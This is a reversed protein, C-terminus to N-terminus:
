EYAANKDYNEILSLILEIAAEMDRLDCMEVQTHMYRSPISLLLTQCGHGTLQLSQTDTGGTPTHHASLQYPINNRLAIQEAVISMCESNDAHRTIIVGGGLSIDGYKRKSINPVDTAIGLDVCVAMDPSLNNLCVKAGKCGLEEQTTSIATVGVSIRSVDLRRMVEAIICIGVKDDLGKSSLRNNGMRILNPRFSVYDGVCIMHKVDAVDMGTDVWLEDMEFCRNREEPKLVHVPIKGIVGDIIRQTKRSHIRVQTGPLCVKDVGGNPRIFVYGDADIYTVQFGIEDIHAAIVLQKKASSNVSAYVNGMVDRRIDCKCSLYAAFVDAAGSEAGSVSCENVIDELLPLKEM